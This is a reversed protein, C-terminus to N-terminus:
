IYRTLSLALINTLLLQTNETESDHITVMTSHMPNHADLRLRNTEVGM